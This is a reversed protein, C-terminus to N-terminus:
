SSGIFRGKWYTKLGIMAATLPMHRAPPMSNMSPVSMRMAASFAV